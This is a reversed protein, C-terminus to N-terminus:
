LEREVAQWEYREQTQYIQDMNESYNEQNM